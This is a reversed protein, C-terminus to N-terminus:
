ASRQYRVIRSFRMLSLNLTCFYGYELLEAAARGLAPSHLCWDIGDSTRTKNNGFGGNMMLVNDLEPHFDIIGNDDLTNYDCVSTWHNDVQIDGGFYDPVRERLAPWVKEQFVAAPSAASASHHGQDRSQPWLGCVFKGPTPLSQFYVGSTPCAVTLRPPPGMRTTSADVLAPCSFSFLYELRPVIPIPYQLPSFAAGGGGGALTDMIFRSQAGTANVVHDVAYTQTVTTATKRTTSSVPYPPKVEQDVHVLRVAQLGAGKSERTTSVPTGRVFEVGM